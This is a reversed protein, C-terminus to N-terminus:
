VLFSKRVKEWFGSNNKTIFKVTKKSLKIEINIVEKFDDNIGDFSITTKEFNSKLKIKSDSSLVIPSSLTSFVRNNIPAVEALQIAKISPDLVSGGVSKNFATSGTPTSIILGSGRFTEFHVDDIFVDIIQTHIPNIIAVENLAYYVKEEKESVLKYELLNYETIINKNSEILRIVELLEDKSFDTYFGLKGYNIGVIKVSDIIDIYKHLAQLITGDGGISFIYEPNNDDRLHGLEELKDSVLKIEDQKGFVTYIM